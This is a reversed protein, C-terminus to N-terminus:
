QDRRIFRRVSSRKGVTLTAASSTFESEVTVGVHHDVHSGAGGKAGHGGESDDQRALVPEPAATTRTDTDTNAEAHTNTNPRTPTTHDSPVDVPCRRREAPPESNRRRSTLNPSSSPKRRRALPRRNPRRIARTRPSRASPEASDVHEAAKPHAGFTSRHRRASDAAGGIANGTAIPAKRSRAGTGGRGGAMAVALGSAEPHKRRHPRWSLSEGWRSGLM